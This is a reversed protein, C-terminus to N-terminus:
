STYSKRIDSTNYVLLSCFIQGDHEACGSEQLYIEPDGPVRNQHVDPCKIGMGISNNSGCNLPTFNNHILYTMITMKASDHTCHSIMDVSCFRALDPAGPPETFGEKLRQKFFHYVATM